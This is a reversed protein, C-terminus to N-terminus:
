CAALTLRKTLRSKYRAATNRHIVGRKVSSDIISYVLPLMNQAEDTNEESLLSRYKKIETRMRSRNRRNIMRRRANQRMQKKASKTNPM